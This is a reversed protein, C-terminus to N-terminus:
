ILSFNIYESNVSELRLPFYLFIQCNVPHFWLKEKASSQNETYFSSNETHKSFSLNVENKTPNLNRNRSYDHAENGPIYKCTASHDQMIEIEGEDFEKNSEEEFDVSQIM